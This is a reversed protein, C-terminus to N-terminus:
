LTGETWKRDENQQGGTTLVPPSARVRSEDLQKCLQLALTTVSLNDLFDAISLMVDFETKLRYRLEIAAVSDLGLYSFPQQVDLQSPSLRLARAVMENLYNTLLAIREPITATLLKKHLAVANPQEGSITEGTALAAFFPLRGGSSYRQLYHDWDVSLVGMQASDQTLLRSLAQLGQKPAIMTVGQAKLTSELHAAMGVGGWPSWNISLAPLGCARRYHALGDLFANAAAYTGQGAWGILSAVSSFLVFFDLPAQQDLVVKEVVTHLNWAGQVKPAMVQKFRESSQSRLVGDDAVGAAHIIGRLPRPCAALLREVDEQKSVDAQIVLVQAGLASIQDIMEQTGNRTNRSALVLYQAGQAALWDAMQLGLAGLGGTILYSGSERVPQPRNNDIAGNTSPSEKGRNRTLRAVYRRNGRYAVLHETDQRLLEDALTAIAQLAPQESSPMVTAPAALDVCVPALEPHELAIVKGLGWLPAQQFTVCEHATVAQAGQTVLWVRPALSSQTLAQVLHLLSLLSWDMAGHITDMYSSIIESGDLQVYIIQQKGTTRHVTECLAVVLTPPSLPATPLPFGQSIAPSLHQQHNNIM